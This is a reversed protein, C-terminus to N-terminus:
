MAPIPTSIFRHVRFCTQTDVEVDASEIRYVGPELEFRLADETPEYGVPSRGLDDVNLIAIDSGSSAADFLVLAGKVDFTPGTEWNGGALMPFISALVDTEPEAYLWQVMAQWGPVYTTGAPEGWLVLAEEEGGISLTGIGQIACAREYDGELGSWHGADIEAMVALPGGTSEVWIVL